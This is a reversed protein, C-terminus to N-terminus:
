LFQADSIEGSVLLLVFSLYLPSYEKYGAENFTANSYLIRSLNYPQGACPDAGTGHKRVGLPFM